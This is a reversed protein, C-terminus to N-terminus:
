LNRDQNQTLLKKIDWLVPVKKAAGYQDINVFQNNQGFEFVEKTVKVDQKCYEIVLDMKGEKVWKLSQLGDASKSIGLTSKAVSDLRVRHGLRNKLDILIDFNILKSFDFSSYGRLVEYDFRVHNFGVVLDASKLLNILEVVDKEEYVHYTKDKTSYCVGCAMGMGKINGWGGVEDASRITELDFYVINPEVDQTKKPADFLSFQDM